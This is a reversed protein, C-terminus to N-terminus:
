ATARRISPRNTHAQETEQEAQHPSVDIGARHAVRPTTGLEPVADVEHDHRNAQKRESLDDLTQLLRFDALGESAPNRAEPRGALLKALHRRRSQASRCDARNYSNQRPGTQRNGGKEGVRELDSSCVDSSWDSIRM